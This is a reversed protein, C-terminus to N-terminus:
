TKRSTRVRYRLVLSEVLVYAILSVTLGVGKLTAWAATSWALAAWIALAFQVWFFLGLRFTMGRLSRRITEAVQPPVGELNKPLGGQKQAMVLLLPRGWVLSGWLVLAFVGEMLAPQLKFWIGEQTVLSVGGLVLLMGNGGWTVPDVKKRTLLEWLIEGVGFVMGAVLGWIVGYRDELISFALVPLLGGFFLSRFKKNRQQNQTKSDM